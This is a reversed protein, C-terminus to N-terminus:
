GWFQNVWEGYTHNKKPLLLWMCNCIPKKLFLLERQHLVSGIGLSLCDFSDRLSDDQIPMLFKLLNLSRCVKKVESIWHSEMNTENSWYQQKKFALCGSKVFVEWELFSPAISAFHLFNPSSSSDAPHVPFKGVSFMMQAFFTLSKHHVRCKQWM